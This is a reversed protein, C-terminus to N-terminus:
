RLLCVIVEDAASNRCPGPRLVNFCASSMITQKFSNNLPSSTRCIYKMRPIKSCFMPFLVADTRAKEDAIRILGSMCHFSIYLGQHLVRKPALGLSVKDFQVGDWQLDIWDVGSTIEQILPLGQQGILGGDYKFSAIDYLDNSQICLGILQIYGCACSWESVLM